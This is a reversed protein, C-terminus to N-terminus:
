GREFGADRIITELNTADTTRSADRLKTVLSAPTVKAQSGFKLPSSTVTKLYKIITAELVRLVDEDMDQPARLYPLLMLVARGALDSQQSSPLSALGSRILALSRSLALPFDASTAEVTFLEAKAKCMISGVMEPPELSSLVHELITKSVAVHSYLALIDVFDEAFDSADGSVQEVAADFIAIPIAGMYAPANALRQLAAANVEEIGKRAEPDM